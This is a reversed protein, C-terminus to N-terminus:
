IIIRSQLLTVARAVYYLLENKQYDNDKKKESIIIELKAM